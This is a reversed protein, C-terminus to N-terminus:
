LETIYLLTYKKFPIGCHCRFHTSSSWMSPIESIQLLSNPWYRPTGGRLFIRKRFYVALAPYFFSIQIHDACERRLGRAGQIKKM